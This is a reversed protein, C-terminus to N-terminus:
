MHMHTPMQMVAMDNIMFLMWVSMGNMFISESLTVKSFPLKFYTGLCVCPHEEKKLLTVIAGYFSSSYIALTILTTPLLFLQSIFLIGLFIEIFPYAKAYFSLRKAIPDYKSFAKAFGTIDNLKILGFLFLVFGMMSAMYDPNTQFRTTFYVLFSSLLYIGIIPWYSFLPLSKTNATNGNQNNYKM